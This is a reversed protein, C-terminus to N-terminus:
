QLMRFDFREIEPLEIKKAPFPAQEFWDHRVLDEASSRVNSDYVFISSLIQYAPGCRLQQLHDALKNYNNNPLNIQGAVRCENFGPWNKSTPRGLVECIKKILDIQGRCEFLPRKTMLEALVCGASWIDVKETYRPAEFLLEPSQYYLTMAGPTSPRELHSFRRSLGFDAIKLQGNESVLLNQPKIDRHVICNKHLFNLGRFLQLSICKVQNHQVINNYHAQIFHSLDYSCLEFTLLLYHPDSDIFVDLLKIVHEHNLNKLITIERFIERPLRSKLESHKILKLAVVRDTKKEKAQYVVSNPGEGLKKQRLFESTLERINDVRGTFVENPMRYKSMDMFSFMEWEDMTAVIITSIVISSSPTENDPAFHFIQIPHHTGGDCRITRGALSVPTNETPFTTTTIPPYYGLRTALQQRHTALV